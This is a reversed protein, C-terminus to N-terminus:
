KSSWYQISEYLEKTKEITKDNFIVYGTKGEKLKVVIYMDVDKYAYLMTKGYGDLSFHGFGKNIGGYGNTRRGTPLQNIVSVSIVEERDFTIDYMAADIYVQSESVTYKYDKAGSYIVFGIVIVIFLLVGWSLMRGKPNGINFTWGMSRFRKPVIARPDNPNNYFGWRWSRQDGQTSKKNKFM